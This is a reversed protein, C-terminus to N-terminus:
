VTMQIFDEIIQVTENVMFCPFGHSAGGVSVISQNKAALNQINQAVQYPVLADHEAFVHLQRGQYNEYVKVLNLQELLQLGDRLLAIPQPLILKQMALFDKKASNSGQCVLLGFRKLTTIADQEFSQKFQMFTEVPMATLWDAQIVFCPNSALTILMKQEAYQQQIHDVLITALQGGLSWGVIVDFKVALEVHQQLIEHDLANFINIREVIHGKQELGDHLPKLLESGGGWGTILLIKYKLKYGM